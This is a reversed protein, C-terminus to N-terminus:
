SGPSVATATRTPICTSSSSTASCPAWALTRDLVRGRMADWLLRLRQVLPSADPRVHQVRSRAAFPSSERADFGAARMTVAIEEAIGDRGIDRFAGALRGAVTAHGGALLRPLLDAADGVLTLAARADVPSRLFYRAPCAVLAAPLSFARVGDLEVVDGADPMAARVDLLSTGHLLPTVRNRARPARVLLQEPVTRNGAHLAVSQEPSVCWAAGLRASLYEACFRWFSACWATSDGAGRDPAAAVYWGKM